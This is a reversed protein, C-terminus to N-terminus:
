VRAGDNTADDATDGGEAHENQQQEPAHPLLRLVVKITIEIRITHGNRPTCRTPYTSRPRQRIDVQSVVRNHLRILITAAHRLM